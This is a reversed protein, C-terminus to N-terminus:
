PPAWAFQFCFRFEFDRQPSWRETGEFSFSQYRERNVENNLLEVIFKNPSEWFLNNMKQATDWYATSDGGEYFQIYIISFVLASIFKAYFANKFFRYHILESNKTYISNISTLIIILWVLISIADMVGLFQFKGEVWTM